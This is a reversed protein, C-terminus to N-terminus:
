IPRDTSLCLIVSQLDSSSLGTGDSFQLTDYWIMIM